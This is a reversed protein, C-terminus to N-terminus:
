RKAFIGTVVPAALLPAGVTQDFSALPGTCHIYVITSGHIVVLRVFYGYGDTAHLLGVVLTRSLSNHRRRTGFGRAIARRGNQIGRGDEALRETSPIPFARVFRVDRGRPKIGKRNAVQQALEGVRAEELSRLKAYRFFGDPSPAHSTIIITIIINPNYIFETEYLHFRTEM